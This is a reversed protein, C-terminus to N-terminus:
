YDKKKQLFFRANVFFITGLLFLMTCLWAAIASYESKFIYESALNVFLMITMTYYMAKVYKM